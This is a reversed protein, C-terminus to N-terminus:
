GIMSVYAYEVSIPLMANPVISVKIEFNVYGPPLTIDHVINDKNNFLKSRAVL